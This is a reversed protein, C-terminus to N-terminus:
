RDDVLLCWVKAGGPASPPKQSGRQILKKRRSEELDHKFFGHINPYSFIEKYAGVVADVESPTLYEDKYFVFTSGTSSTAGRLFQFSGHGSTYVYNVSPQDYPEVISASSSKDPNAEPVVQIKTESPGNNRQLLAVFRALIAEQDVFPPCVFSLRITSVGNPAHIRSIGIKQIPFAKPIRSESSKLTSRFESVQARIREVAEEFQLRQLLRENYCHTLATTDTHM